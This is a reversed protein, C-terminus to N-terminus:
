SVTPYNQVSMQLDRILAMEFTEMRAIGSGRVSGFGALVIARNQPQTDPADRQKATCSRSKFAANELQRDCPAQVRSGNVGLGRDVTRITVDSVCAVVAGQVYTWEFPTTMDFFDIKSVQVNDRPETPVECAWGSSEGSM